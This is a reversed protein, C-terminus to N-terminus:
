LTSSESRDPFRINEALIGNVLITSLQRARTEIEDRAGFENQTLGLPLLSNTATILIFAVQYSDNFVFCDKEKGEILLKEFLKAEIKQLEYRQALFAARMAAFFETLQFIYPQVVDFGLMVRLTLMERLRDQPPKDSQLRVKDLAEIAENETQLRYELAIHEKDHFYQYVTAKGLDAERAIDIMTVKAFGYQKVLRGAAMLIANRTEPRHKYSSDM